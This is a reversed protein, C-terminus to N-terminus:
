GECDLLHQQDAHIPRVHPDTSFSIWVIDAHVSARYGAIITNSNEHTSLVEM